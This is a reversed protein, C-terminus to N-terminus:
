GSSCSAVTLPKTDAEPTFITSTKALLLLALPPNARPWLVLDTASSTQFRRSIWLQCSDISVPALDPM